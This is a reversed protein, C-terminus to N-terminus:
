SYQHLTFYKINDVDLVESKFTDAGAEILAVIVEM